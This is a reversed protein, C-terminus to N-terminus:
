KYEWGLFKAGLITGTEKAHHYAKYRRTDEAIVQACLEVCENCIYVNPGAIIVFLDDQHKGCFSCFIGAQQWDEM